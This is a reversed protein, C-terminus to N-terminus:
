CLNSPLQGLKQIRLDDVVQRGGVHCSQAEGITNPRHAPLGFWELRWRDCCRSRFTRVASHNDHDVRDATSLREGVFQGRQEAPLLDLEQVAPKVWPIPREDLAVDHPREPFVPGGRCQTLRRHDQDGGLHDLGPQVDRGTQQEGLPRRGVGEDLAPSTRRAPASPSMDDDGRRRVEAGLIQRKGILPLFRHLPHQHCRAAPEFLVGCLLQADRGFDFLREEVVDVNRAIEGPDRIERGADAALAERDALRNLLSEVAVGACQDSADVVPCHQDM